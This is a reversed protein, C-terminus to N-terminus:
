NSLYLINTKRSKCHKCFSRRNSSLKGRNIRVWITRTKPNLLVVTTQEEQVQQKTRQIALRTLKITRVLYCLRTKSPQHLLMRLSDLTKSHPYLINHFNSNM